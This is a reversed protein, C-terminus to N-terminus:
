ALKFSAAVVSLSPIKVEVRGDSIKVETFPSSKILDPKEFSNAAKADPGTLLEADILQM